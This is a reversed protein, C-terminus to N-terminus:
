FRPKRLAPVDPRKLPAFLARYISATPTRSAISRARGVGDQYAAYAECALSMQACRAREPCADCPARENLIAADQHHAAHNLVAASQAM